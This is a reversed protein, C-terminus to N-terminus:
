AVKGFRLHVGEVRPSYVFIEFLPKPLPLGDIKRSSFKITILGKPQRDADLQYFNTRVAAQVANVFHRLIRDEDLSEVFALAKEIAGALEVERAQRTDPSEQRPDFRTHFLEVIQAAIDSHRVLTSSMYGQSYPLRIQRLFRSLARLLAVDRWMVGGALVLTNFGDNEAAGGMVVLFCTELAHKREEPDFEAGDARELLMDHLWVDSGAGRAIQYTLEAVVRFGMNELVPVRESLPIPRNHSWIKLGIGKREDARRHFDASLPRAASLSESVRID